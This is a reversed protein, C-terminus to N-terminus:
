SYVMIDEEVLNKQVIGDRIGTGLIKIVIPRQKAQVYRDFDHPLGEKKPPDLVMIGRLQM